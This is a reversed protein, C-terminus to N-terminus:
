LKKIVAPRVASYGACLSNIRTLMAGRVIEEPIPEGAGCMLSRILNEQLPVQQNKKVLEIVDAGFNTNVGYLYYVGRLLEDLYQKSAVVADSMEVSFPRRYSAVAVVDDATLSKGDAVIKKPLGM